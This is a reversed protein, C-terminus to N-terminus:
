IQQEFVVLLDTCFIIKKKWIEHVVCLLAYVQLPKDEHTSM